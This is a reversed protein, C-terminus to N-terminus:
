VFGGKTWIDASSYATDVVETASIDVSATVYVGDRFPKQWSVSVSTVIANCSVMDGIRIFCQPSKLVGDYGPYTLSKLANVTGLLGMKCLDDHLTLSFSIERPGSSNYGQYPSSRGRVDQADFQASSSDSFEEPECEFEITTNLISNIIYCPIYDKPPSYVKKNTSSSVAQDQSPSASSDYTADANTGATSNAPQNNKSNIYDDLQEKDFKYDNGKTEDERIDPIKVYNEMSYPNKNYKDWPSKYEFSYDDAM